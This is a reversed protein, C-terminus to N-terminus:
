DSRVNAGSHCTTQPSAWVVKVDYADFSADATVISLREIQAQAILLRDFPDRHHLPLQRVQWAHDATVPLLHFGLQEVQVPLDDPVDLKGLAAKIAIEWLSATSVLVEAEDAEIAATPEPGLRSDDLVHWLLVHSDVLLRAV